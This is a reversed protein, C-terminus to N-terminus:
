KVVRVARLGDKTRCVIVYTGSPLSTTSINVANVEKSTEITIQHGLLDYMEVSKLDGSVRIRDSFPNPVAHLAGDEAGSAGISVAAAPRVVIGWLADETEMLCLPIDTAAHLTLDNLILRTMGKTTDQIRFNASAFNLPRGYSASQNAVSFQVFTGHDNASTISWGPAGVLSMFQLRSSDYSFTGSVSTLSPWAARLAATDSMDEAMPMTVMDGVAGSRVALHQQASVVSGKPGLDLAECSRLANGAADAGGFVFVSENRACAGNPKDYVVGTYLYRATILEPGIWSNGNSYRYWTTHPSVNQFDPTSGGIVVISDDGVRFAYCHWQARTLKGIQSWKGTNWDFSEVNQTLYNSGSRGSVLLPKQDPMQIAMIQSNDHPEVSSDGLLWKNAKISFLSTSRLYYGNFGDFEGGCIMLTDSTPSQYLLLGTRGIGSKPLITFKETATDYILAMDLYKITNANLGGAVFIRGDAMRMSAVNESPIPLSDTFAWTNIAPDYLECTATTAVGLDSLGGIALIKGNDLASLSFRYRGQKLTGGSTWVNKTPDYIECDKVMGSQDRGGVVIIRGDTLLSCKPEIRGHKMPAIGKWVQAESSACLLIVVAISFVICRRSPIM